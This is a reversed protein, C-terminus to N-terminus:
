PKRPPQMQRVPKPRTKRYTQREAMEQERESREKEMMAAFVSDEHAINPVTARVEKGKEVGIAIWTFEANQDGFDCKVRFGHNDQEPIYLLASSKPTVTIDIPEKDSVFEVFSEPFEIYAEGNRLKARGHAVIEQRESEIASFSEYEGKSNRKFTYWGGDAYASGTAGFYFKTDNAAALRALMEDSTDGHANNVYFTPNRWGTSNNEIYLACTTAQSIVGYHPVNKVVLGDEGTQEIRIGDGTGTNTVELVGNLGGNVQGEIVANGNVELNHTPDTTNIGLKMTNGPDKFIVANNASSVFNQGFGFSVDGNVIVHDGMAFSYVGNAENNRGGVIAAFSDATIYNGFGGLIASYSSHYNIENWKGGSITSFDGGADITNHSGGAIVGYKGDVLNYSGGGIFGYASDVVNTDGGAVVAFDEYAINKIGGGVFTSSDVAWNKVGSFVGSFTGYARNWM